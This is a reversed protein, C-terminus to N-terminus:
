SQRLRKGDSREYRYYLVNRGGACGRPEDIKQNQPAFCNVITDNIQLM